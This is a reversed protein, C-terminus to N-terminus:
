VLFDFHKMNVKEGNPILQRLEAMRDLIQQRDKPRPRTGPKAKKTTSKQTEVQKKAQLVTSSGSMSYGNAMNLGPQSKPEWMSNKTKRRKASVQGDICSSSAAYSIGSVSELLEEIGLKSFLKEKPGLATCEVHQTSKSMTMCESSYSHFRSQSGDIIPALIDGLDGSNKFLDVDTGSITLLERKGNCNFSFIDDKLPPFWNCDSFDGTQFFENPIGFDPLENLVASSSNSGNQHCTQGNFSTLGIDSGGNNVIEQFMRKTQNSFEMNEPIQIM